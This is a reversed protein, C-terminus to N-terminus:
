ITIITHKNENLTHVLRPIYSKCHLQKLIHHVNSKLLGIEGSSGKKMQSTQQHGPDEQINSTFMKFLEVQRLSIELETM